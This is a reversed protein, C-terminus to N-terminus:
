PQPPPLPPFFPDDENSKTQDSDASPPQDKASAETTNSAAPQSQSKTDTASPSKAPIPQQTAAENLAAQLEDRSQRAHEAQPGTPVLKLFGDLDKLLAPRDNREIHINALTLYVSPENPKLDRAQTADKEADELQKLGLHARALELHGHWSTPDLAVGKRAMNEAEAFRKANNLMGSLMLLADPYQSSSLEISKTFAEEASALEGLSMYAGGEQAYAEYFDPYDKIARQFQAIAGRCDSKEYLLNLGKEYEEHAKQPVGLEHVSVAGTSKTNSGEANSLGFPRRLFVAMGMRSSNNITVAERYLEYGKLNVEIYYDGNSLSGFEFEGNSRTYATNITMGGVVKLDVQVNEITQHNEDDRVNGSIMYIARNSNRSQSRVPLVTAALILFLGTARRLFMM